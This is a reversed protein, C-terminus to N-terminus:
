SASLTEEEWPDVPSGAIELFESLVMATVGWVVEGSVRFLPVRFPVGDRTWTEVSGCGAASFAALPPEIVRAVERPSPRIEPRADALAVVTHLAFGSVSVHLPTLRGVVRAVGRALGVEEEAERLAADEVSEGPDVAGGPFAVQGRHSPLDASRVTLLIRAEGDIPYVLLLAAAPRLGEPLVGPTWYNRPRPALRVHARGGPLPDALARPLARSLAEFDM